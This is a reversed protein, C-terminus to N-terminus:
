AADSNPTDDWYLGDFNNMSRNATAPSTQPRLRPVAAHVAPLARRSRSAAFPIASGFAGALGHSIEMSLAVVLLFNAHFQRVTREGHM